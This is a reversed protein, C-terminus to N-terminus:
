KPARWDMELRYEDLTDLSFHCTTRKDYPPYGNWQGGFALSPMLLPTLVRKEDHVLYFHNGDGWGWAAADPNGYHDVIAQMEKENVRVFCDYGGPGNWTFCLM